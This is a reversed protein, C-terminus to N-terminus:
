AGTLLGRVFQTVNANTWDVEGVFKRVVIGNKIVYSEPYQFTGYKTSIDASPDRATAFSVPIRTLFNKYKQASKDISIGVVVVGSKSFERQFQSLSPLEQRCPACWTAWFNLVLVKGGFSTPTIKRGQNTVISFAPARGGVKAYTDRLSLTIVGIFVLTLTVLIARLANNIKM